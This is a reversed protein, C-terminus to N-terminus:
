PDNSGNSQPAEAVRLAAKAELRCKALSQCIELMKASCQCFTERARRISKGINPLKGAMKGFM